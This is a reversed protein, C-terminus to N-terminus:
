RTVKLTGYAGLDTDSLITSAMAYSGPALYLILETSQGPPLPQTTATMRGGQSLVLNHTLRGYNRVYITLVGTSVSIHQPNLRYESLAVHVVRDAGVRRRHSCGTAVIACITLLALISARPGSMLM